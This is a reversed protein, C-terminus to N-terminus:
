GSVLLCTFIWMSVGMWTRVCVCVRLYLGAHICGDMYACVSVCPFLAGCCSVCVRWVFRQHWPLKRDAESICMLPFLVCPAACLLGVWLYHWADMWQYVGSVVIGAILSVWVPTYLVFFLEAWRKSGNQSMWRGGGEDGRQPRGKMECVVVVVVVCKRGEPHRDTEGREREEEAAPKTEM